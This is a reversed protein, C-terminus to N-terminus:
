PTCLAAQKLQEPHPHRPRAQISASEIPLRDEICSVVRSDYSQLVREPNPDDIGLSVNPDPSGTPQEQDDRREDVGILVIGGEANAFQCVDLLFEKNGDRDKTYLASKYELQLHEELGSDVLRCVDAETIDRLRRDEWVM